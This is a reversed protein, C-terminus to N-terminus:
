FGYKEYRRKLAEEGGELILAVQSRVGVNDIFGQAVIDCRLNGNPGTNTDNQEKTDLAVIMEADGGVPVNANHTAVIIQRQGRRRRLLQVVEDYIFRNDLDDEPQDIILPMNSEQLLISL